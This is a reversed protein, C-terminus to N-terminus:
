RHFSWWNAKRNTPKDAKDIDARITTINETTPISGIESDNKAFHEQFVAKESKIKDVNANARFTRQYWLRVAIGISSPYKKKLIYKEVTSVGSSAATYFM